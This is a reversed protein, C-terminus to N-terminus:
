VHSEVPVVCNSCDQAAREVYKMVPSVQYTCNITLQVIASGSDSTSLDLPIDAMATQFPVTCDSGVYGPSCRCKGRTTDCTGHGGCLPHACLVGPIAYAEIFYTLEEKGALDNYVAVYWPRATSNAGKAAFSRGFHFQGTASRQQSSAVLEHVTAGQALVNYSSTGEFDFADECGEGAGHLSKCYRPIEDARMFVLPKSREHLAKHVRVVVSRTDVPLDLRYYHFRGEALTRDMMVARHLLTDSTNPPMAKAVDLSAPLISCDRGFYGSDCDCVPAAQGCRGHGHCGNGYCLVPSSGGASRIWTVLGYRMPSRTYLRDAELPSNRMGYMNSTDANLTNYVGIYYTGRTARFSVRQTHAVVCDASECYRSEDDRFDYGVGREQVYEVHLTGDWLAEPPSESLQGGAADDDYFEFLEMKTQGTPGTKCKAEERGELVQVGAADVFSPCFGSM